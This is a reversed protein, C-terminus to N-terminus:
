ILTVKLHPFLIKIPIGPFGAGTGVDVLTYFDSMNLVNSILVSDLFHKTMVENLDTIATLNMVKNKEILLDYYKMFQEIQKDTFQINLQSLGQELLKRGQIM